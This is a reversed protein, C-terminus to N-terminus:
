IPTFEEGRGPGCGACDWPCWDGYAREPHLLKFPRVRLHLWEGFAMGAGFAAYYDRISRRESYNFELLLQTTDAPM